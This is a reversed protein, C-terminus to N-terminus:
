IPKLTRVRREECGACLSREREMFTLLRGCRGCRPGQSVGGRRGDARAQLFGAVCMPTALLLVGGLLLFFPLGTLWVGNTM